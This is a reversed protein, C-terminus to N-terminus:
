NRRSDGASVASVSRNDSIKRINSVGDFDYSFNILQTNLTSPQSVTLLSNLRLRPDYDYTTRVGNGYDIQGLQDSPRYVINSIISGSPGGTIRALLNRANYFYNVQD